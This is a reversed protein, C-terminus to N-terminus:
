VCFPFYAAVLDEHSGGILVRFGTSGDGLPQVWYGHGPACGGAPYLVVYPDLPYGVSCGSYLSEEKAKALQQAREMQTADANSQHLIRKSSRSGVMPPSVGGYAVVEDVSLRGGLFVGTGAREKHVFDDTAGELSGASPLGIPVHQMDSVMFVPATSSFVMKETACRKEAPLATDASIGNSINASDDAAVNFGKLTDAAGDAVACGVGIDGELDDIMATSVTVTTCKPPIFPDMDLPPLPSPLGDDIDVDCDAWLKRPILGTLKSESWFKEHINDVSPCDILGVRLVPLSNGKVQKNQPANQKPPDQNVAPTANTEGGSSRDMDKQVEKGKGEDQGADGGTNAENMVVDAKETIIDTELKFILGYGQGDYMHDVTTTPIFEARTVEVLMRVTTHARTFVMDVEKTKGILSGVGFLSLYDCREKYCVGHVRVWVPTVYFKDLDAASWEDFNLFMSTGPVPVKIIKVMRALDAKSPFIVKFAGDDTPTLNWQHNGPIIWQLEHIIESASLSGGSVSISGVKGSDHKFTVESSAPVEHFMLENRSVGYTIAVPKPMSLLPCDKAEHSIKECYICLVATCADVFHGFESCKVCQMKDIKKQARASVPIGSSDVSVNDAPQPSVVVAAGDSASPALGSAETGQGINTGQSNENVDFRRQYRNNNNNFRGTGRFNNNFNRNWQQRNNNYPRPRFNGRNQSGYSNGYGNNGKYYGEQFGGYGHVEFGDYRRSGFGSASGSGGGHEFRSPQPGLESGVPTVGGNGAAANSSAVGSAAETGVAVGRSPTSGPLVPQRLPRPPPNAARPVAPRNGAMPSLVRAAPLCRSSPLSLSQRSIPEPLGRAISVRRFGRPMRRSRQGHSGNSEVEQVPGNAKRFRPPGDFEFAGSGPNVAIPLSRRDRHSPRRREQGSFCRPARRFRRCKDKRYVTVWESADFDQLFFVTPELVPFKLSKEAPSSRSMM